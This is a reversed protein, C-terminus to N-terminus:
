GLQASAIPQGNALDIVQRGDLPASLKATVLMRTVYMPCIRGGAPVHVLGVGVSGSSQQLVVDYQGCAGGQSEIGLYLTRGDASHAASQFASYKTGAPATSQQSNPTVPIGGGPLPQTSTAAGTGSTATTRSSGSPSASASASPSATVAASGSSSSGASVSVSKSTSACATAGALLLAGAAGAALASGFRRRHRLSRTSGTTM